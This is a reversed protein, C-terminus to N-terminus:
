AVIRQWEPHKALFSKVYSCMPIIKRGQEEILSLTKTVLMSAIGKGELSEPVETHILMYNDGREQYAILAVDDGFRMEFQEEIKNQILPVDKIEATM